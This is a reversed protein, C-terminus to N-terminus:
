QALLAAEVVEESPLVRGIIQATQKMSEYGLSPVIQSFESVLSKFKLTKPPVEEGVSVEGGAVYPTVSAERLRDGMGRANAATLYLHAQARTM